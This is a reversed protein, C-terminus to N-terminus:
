GQLSKSFFNSWSWYSLSMHVLFILVFSEQV